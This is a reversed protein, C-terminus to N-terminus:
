TVIFVRLIKKKLTMSRLKILYEQTYSSINLNRKEMFEKDNKSILKEVLNDFEKPELDLINDLDDKTIDKIYFDLTEM